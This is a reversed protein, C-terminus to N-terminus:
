RDQLVVKVFTHALGNGTRCLLSLQQGITEKTLHHSKQEGWVSFIFILIRTTNYNIFNFTLSSSNLWQPFKRDNKKRKNLQGSLCFGEPISPDRWIVNVKATEVEEEPEDPGSVDEDSASMM